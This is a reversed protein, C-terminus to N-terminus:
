ERPDSSPKYRIRYKWVEIRDAMEARKPDDPALMAFRWEMLALRRQRNQQVIDSQTLPMLAPYCM